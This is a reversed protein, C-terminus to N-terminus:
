FSYWEYAGRGTDNYARAGLGKSEPTEQANKALMKIVSCLEINPAYECPQFPLEYLGNEASESM